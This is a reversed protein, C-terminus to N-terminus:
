NAKRKVTQRFANPLSEELIHAIDADQNNFLFKIVKDLLLDTESVTVSTAHSIEKKKGCYFWYWLFPKNGKKNNCRACSLQLNNLCRKMSPVDSCPVIHDVTEQKQGIIRGCYLCRGGQTERLFAVIKKKKDPSINAKTM